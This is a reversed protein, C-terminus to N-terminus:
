APTVLLAFRATVGAASKDTLKLGVVTIPLAVEVTVIVNFPVAGVPPATTASDLVLVATIKGALRVIGAPPLVAVSVSAVTGTAAVV